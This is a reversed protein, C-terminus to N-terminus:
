RNMWNNGTKGDGRFVLRVPGLETQTRADLMVRARSSFGTSDQLASGRQRIGAEGRVQGSVRLCTSSGPQRFFGPGYEPCALMSDRPHHPKMPQALVGRQQPIPQAIQAMAPLTVTASALTMLFCAVRLLPLRGFLRLANHGFTPMPKALVCHEIKNHDIM